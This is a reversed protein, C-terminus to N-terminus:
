RSYGHKCCGTWCSLPAVGLTPSRVAAVLRNGLEVGGTVLARERGADINGHKTIKRGLGQEHTDEGGEDTKGTGKGDHQVPEGADAGRLRLCRGPRIASDTEIPTQAMTSLMAVRRGIEIAQDVGPAASSALEPAISPPNAVATPPKMTQATSITMAPRQFGSPRMTAAMGAVSALAMSDPTSIPRQKAGTFAMAKSGTSPRGITSAQTTTPLM